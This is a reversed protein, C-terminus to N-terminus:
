NFLIIKKLFNEYVRQNDRINSAMQLKKEIIKFANQVRVLIGKINKFVSNTCKLMLADM